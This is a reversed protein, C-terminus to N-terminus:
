RGRVSRVDVGCRQIRDGLTSRKVRLLAAARSQNGGTEQLAWEILSAEVRRLHEDLDFRFQFKADLESEVSTRTPSM